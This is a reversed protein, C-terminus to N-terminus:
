KEQVTAGLAEAVSRIAIEVSEMGSWGLEDYDAEYLVKRGMLVRLREEDQRDFTIISM